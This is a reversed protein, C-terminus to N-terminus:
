GGRQLPRLRSRSWHQRHRQVQQGTLSMDPTYPNLATEVEGSMDPSYPNLATEVEGSMDPSYPNLATEVEGSM